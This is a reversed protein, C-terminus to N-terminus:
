FPELLTVNRSPDGMRLSPISTPIRPEGLLLSSGKNTQDSRELISVFEPPASAPQRIDKEGKVLGDWSAGTLHRSAAVKDHSAGGQGARASKRKGGRKGREQGGSKASEMILWYASSARRCTTGEEEADAASM